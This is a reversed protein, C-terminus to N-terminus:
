KLHLLNRALDRGKLHEGDRERERCGREKDKKKERDSENGARQPERLRRQKTDFRMQNLVRFVSSRAKGNEAKGSKGAM